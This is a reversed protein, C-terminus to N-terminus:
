SVVDDGRIGGSSYELDRKYFEGNRYRRRGSKDASSTAPFLWLIPWRRRRGLSFGRRSPRAESLMTIRKPPWARRSVQSSRRFDFMVCSYRIIITRRPLDNCPQACLSRALRLTGRRWNANLRPMCMHARSISLRCNEVSYQQVLLM